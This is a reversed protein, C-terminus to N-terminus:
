PCVHSLGLGLSTGRAASGDVPFSRPRSLRPRRPRHAPLFVALVPGARGPLRAHVHGLDPCRTVHARPGVLETLTIEAANM